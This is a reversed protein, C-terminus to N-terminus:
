LSLHYTPGNARRFSGLHPREQFGQLWQQGGQDDHLWWEAETLQGVLCCRETYLQWILRPM